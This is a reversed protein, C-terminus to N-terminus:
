TRSGSMSRAIKLHERLTPLTQKAFDAAPGSRRSERQFAKIDKKHDQVMKKALQRDFKAGSFSSLKDYTTKQNANPTTPLTMGMSEALPRAKELNAAHDRALRQGFKKVKESASREQALKGIRIEALDGQIVENVFARNAETSDPGRAHALGSASMLAVAMAAFSIRAKRTDDKRM